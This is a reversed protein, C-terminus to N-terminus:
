FGVLFGFLRSARLAISARKFPLATGTAVVFTNPQEILHASFLSQILLALSSHALSGTLSSVILALWTLSNIFFLEPFNLSIFTHAVQHPGQTASNPSKTVM